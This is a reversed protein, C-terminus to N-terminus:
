QESLQESSAVYIAVLEGVTSPFVVESMDSFPDIGLADELRGLLVAFALSDLELDMMETIECQPSQAEEKLTERLCDIVTKRVDM